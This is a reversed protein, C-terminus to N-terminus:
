TNTKPLLKIGEIVGYRAPTISNPRIIIHQWGGYILLHEYRGEYIAAKTDVLYWGPVQEDSSSSNGGLNLYDFESLDIGELPINIDSRSRSTATYIDTIDVNYNDCNVGYMEYFQAGRGLAFTFHTNDTKYFLIYQGGTLGYTICARNAGSITIMKDLSSPTCLTDGYVNPYNTNSLRIKIFDFNHYDESLEINTGDVTSIKTESFIPKAKNWKYEVSDRNYECYNWPISSHFETNSILDFYFSLGTEFNKKPVLHMVLEKNLDYFKIEGVAATATSFLSISNHSFSYDQTHKIPYYIDKKLDIIQSNELDISFRQINENNYPIDFYESNHIQFRAINGEFIPVNFNDQSYLIYGNDNCTRPSFEIEFKSIEDGYLPLTISQNGTDRDTIILPLVDVFQGVNINGTKTYNKNNVVLNAM